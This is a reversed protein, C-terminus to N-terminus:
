KELLINSVLIPFILLLSANEFRNKLLSNKKKKNTNKYLIHLSALALFM